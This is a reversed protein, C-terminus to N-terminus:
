GLGFLGLFFTLRTSFSAPDEEAWIHIISYFTWVGFIATARRLLSRAPKPGSRAQERRMSVYIGLALLLCYFIRSQLAAWMAVFDARALPADLRIWHYYMNGLFAAAFVAALMRLRPHGKFYRTFTPFFFFHVLLEKFYYYYRGWFEVVTEALLPKYTNRFVNFGAFRLWGIILHGSAALDLVAWILGFYLGMWALWPSYAEPSALM